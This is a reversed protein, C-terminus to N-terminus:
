ECWCNSVPSESRGIDGSAIGAELPKLHRFGVVTQTTREFRELALFAAAEGLYLGLRCQIFDTLPQAGNFRRM